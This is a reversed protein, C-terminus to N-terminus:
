CTTCYFDVTDCVVSRQFAVALLGGLHWRTGAWLPRCDKPTPVLPLHTFSSCEGSVIWRHDADTLVHPLAQDKWLGHLQSRLFGTDPFGLDRGCQKHDRPNKNSFLGALWGRFPGFHVSVQKKRLVCILLKGRLKGKPVMDCTGRCNM